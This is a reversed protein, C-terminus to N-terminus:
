GNAGVPSIRGNEDGRVVKANGRRDDLLDRHPQVLLGADAALTEGDGRRVRVGPRHQLIDRGGEEALRDRLLVLLVDVAVGAGEGVFKLLNGEGGKLIAPGRRQTPADALDGEGDVPPRAATRDIVVQGDEDHLVVLALHPGNVDAVGTVADRQRVVSDAAVPGAKSLLHDLSLVRAANGEDRDATAAVAVGTGADGAALDPHGAFLPRLDS